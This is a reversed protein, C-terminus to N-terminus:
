DILINLFKKCESKFLRYRVVRAHNKAKNDNYWRKHVEKNQEPHNERWRRAYEAKTLPM